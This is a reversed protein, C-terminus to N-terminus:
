MIVFWLCQWINPFLFGLEFEFMPVDFLLICHWRYFYLMMFWFLLPGYVESRLAFVICIFVRWCIFGWIFGRFCHLCFRVCFLWSGSQWARLSVIVSLPFATSSLAFHSCNFFSFALPVLTTLHRVFFIVHLSIPEGLVIIQIM